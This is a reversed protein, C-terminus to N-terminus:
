PDKNDKLRGKEQKSKQVIQFMFSFFYLLNDYRGDYVVGVFIDHFERLFYYIAEVTALFTDPKDRQHRWFHTIHNKLIVCQLSLLADIQAKVKSDNTTFIRHTQNWTSDIFIVREFPASVREETRQKKLPPERVEGSQKEVDEEQAATNDQKEERGNETDTSEPTITQTKETNQPKDKGKLLGHQKKSLDELSLANLGPFVIVVKSPDSFEPIIPYTYIRVDEPAIIAAHAATSKGDVEKPHKIIDVKFPLKVKPVKGELEAVLVYCTYCFYKRSQQCKPCVTRRDLSNLCEQSALKLCGFPDEGGAM